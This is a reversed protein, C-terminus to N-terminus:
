SEWYLFGIPVRYNSVKSGELPYSKLAMGRILGEPFAKFLARPIGITGILGLGQYDLTWLLGM